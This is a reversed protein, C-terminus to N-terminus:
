RVIFLVVYFVCEGVSISFTGDCTKHSGSAKIQGNLIETVFDAPRAINKFVIETITEGTASM